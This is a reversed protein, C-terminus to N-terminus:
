LYKEKYWKHLIILAWLRNYLYDRGAFFEKKLQRVKSPVVLGCEEVVEDSLYRDILYRLENKLWSRLPIAFGWKPRDFLSAPVYDYLVQKLLYKGINGRLKLSPSVNLAFEVLRHDLLPVRVELSHHMSARDVKVLLEEPLYNKLDYFSQEETETLTRRSQDINEDIDIGAPNKLLRALERETFFYQEQSFVSSKIREPNYRFHHSVRKMRNDGAHYLVEAIPKRFTRLFPNNLRRAWYYFGYGMFLEDGGDGSLAVKVYKSALQSVMLTPIASSDAYPEDYIDMLKDVLHLADQETVIFEYHDSGIYKAVEGAFQAENYKKEKFGISFTKVKDGSVVKAAAAVISSDIGGSLFIGVPVDSILCYKVSSEVLEKLRAKAIDVNGLTAPEIKDEIKWYSQVRLCGKHLVAFHGPKLKKCSTYITEDGPIYGLYLFNNISHRNITKTFPLSFIAKLESAFAFHGEENYYYLPKIGIRDRVLFLKEEKTDWIVITFMGNLDNVSDIGAQAFAELIIESDSSTRPVIRYKEAVEKFNYVEGNYIMVYRRDHSWFPQNAAASLDIISLRRHGLGVAAAPDYFFGSADPGRHRLMSTMKELHQEDFKKSVFGAIGCM